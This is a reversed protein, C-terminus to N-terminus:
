PWSRSSKGRRFAAVHREATALLRGEQVKTFMGAAMAQKLKFYHDAPCFFTITSPTQKKKTADVFCKFETVPWEEGGVPCKFTLPLNVPEVM